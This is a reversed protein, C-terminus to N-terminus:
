ESMIVILVTLNRFSMCVIALLCDVYRSYTLVAALCWKKRGTTANSGRQWSLEVGCYLLDEVYFVFLIVYIFICLLFM